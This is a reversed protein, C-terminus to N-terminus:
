SLTLEWNQPLRVVLTPAATNRLRTCDQIRISSSNSAIRGYSFFSKADYSGTWNFPVASLALFETSEDAEIRTVLLAIQWVKWELSHALARALTQVSSMITKAISSSTFLLPNLSKLLDRLPEQISYNVNTLTGLLVIKANGWKLFGESSPM